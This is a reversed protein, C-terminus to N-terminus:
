LSYIGGRPVPPDFDLYFSRPIADRVDLTKQCTSQGAAQVICQSAMVYSPACSQPPCQFLAGGLDSHDSETPADGHDMSTHHHSAHGHHDALHGGEAWNFPGLVLALVLSGLLLARRAVKYAQCAHGMRSM